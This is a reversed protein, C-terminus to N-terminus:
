TITLVAHQRRQLRRSLNFITMNMNPNTALEPGSRRYKIDFDRRRRTPYVAKIIRPQIYVRTGM